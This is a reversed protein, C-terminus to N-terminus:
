VQKKICGKVVPENGTFSGSDNFHGRCSLVLSGNNEISGQNNITGYNTITNICSQGCDFDNYLRGGGENNITGYNKITGGGINQLTGSNNIEGRRENTFTSGVGGNQLVADPFINITGRNSSEGSLLIQGYLNITGMNRFEGAFSSEINVTGFNEFNGQLQVGNTITLTDSSSITLTGVTTCFLNNSDWTVSSAGLSAAVTECSTQDSITYSTAYANQVPTLVSGIMMLSASLTAVVAMLTGLKVRDLVKHRNKFRTKIDSKDTFM